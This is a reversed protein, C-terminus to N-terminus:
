SHQIPQPPYGEVKQAEVLLPPLQPTRADFGRKMDDPVYQQIRLQFRRTGFHEMFRAFAIKSQTVAWVGRVWGLAIGPGICGGIDHHTNAIHFLCLSRGPVNTIHVAPYGGRHFPRPECDYDGEPICSVGRRNSLWADEVTYLLQGDPIEMRGFTGHPTYAFREIILDPTM